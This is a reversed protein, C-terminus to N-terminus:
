QQKLLTSLGTSLQNGLNSLGQVQIMLMAHKLSDARLAAIPDSKILPNNLTHQMEAQMEAEIGDIRKLFQSPEAPAGNQLQRMFEAGNITPPKPTTQYSSQGSPLNNQMEPLVLKPLEFAPTLQTGISNSSISTIM